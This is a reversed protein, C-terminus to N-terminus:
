PRLWCSIMLLFFMFGFLIAMLHFKQKYLQAEAYWFGAPTEDFRKVTSNHFPNSKM